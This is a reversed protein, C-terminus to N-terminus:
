RRFELREVACGGCHGRTLLVMGLQFGTSQWERPPDFEIIRELGFGARLIAARRHRTWLHNITTVMAVRDAVKLSHVLFARFQSWPPNTVIWDVHQTWQLFDIGKEIECSFVQGCPRLARVFNGSGACPELITGSPRLERVLARALRPPTM